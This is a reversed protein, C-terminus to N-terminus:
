INRNRHEACRSMYYAFLFHLSLSRLTNRAYGRRDLHKLYRAIPEVLTGDDDVVVYRRRHDGSQIDVLRM